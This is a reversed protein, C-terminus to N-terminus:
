HAAQRPSTFYSVFPPIKPQRDSLLVQSVMNSISRTLNRGFAEHQRTFRLMTEFDLKLVASPEVAVVDVPVPDAQAAALAGFQSGRTLFRQLLTNGHMDVVSQKLRGHVVLYVSKIPQNAHHVYEGSEFQVLEAADCIEQL